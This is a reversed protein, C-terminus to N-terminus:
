ITVLIVTTQAQQWDIIALLECVDGDADSLHKKFQCVNLYIDFTKFAFKLVKIIEQFYSFLAYKKAWIM